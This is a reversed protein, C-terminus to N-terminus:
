DLKMEASLDELENIWHETMKEFCLMQKYYNEAVKLKKKSKEDKVKNKYKAIIKPLRDKMPHILKEHITNLKQINIKALDKEMYFYIKKTGPKKIRRIIGLNEMMKITNSISAPSYGTEKSIDEMTVGEPELYLMGVIDAPLDGFVFMSATDKYVDIFEKDLDDM